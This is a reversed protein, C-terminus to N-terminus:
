IDAMGGIRANDADIKTAAGTFLRKDIKTMGTVVVEQLTESSESLEITMKEKTIPVELTTMGIYSVELIKANDPVNVIVFNGDLDTSGSLQTGKVKVAAGIIPEKDSASIVVGEVKANQASASAICALM